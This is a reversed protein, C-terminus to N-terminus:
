QVLTYTDMNNNIKYELPICLHCDNKTCNINWRVLKPPEPIPSPADFEWGPPFGPPSRPQFLQIDTLSSGDASVTKWCNDEPFIRAIESDSDDMDEYDYISDIYDSVEERIDRSIETIDTDADSNTVSSIDCQLAWRLDGAMEMLMKMMKEDIAKATWIGGIHPISSTGTKKLESVLEYAAESDAWYNITVCACRRGKLPPLGDIFVFEPVPLMMVSAISSVINRYKLTTLIYQANEDSNLDFLLVHTIANM